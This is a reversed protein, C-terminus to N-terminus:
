WKWILDAGVKRNNMSQLSYNKITRYHLPFNSWKRGRKEGGMKIVWGHQNKIEPHLNLFAWDSLFLPHVPPFRQVVNLPREGRGHGDLWVVLCHLSVKGILRQTFNLFLSHPKPSCCNISGEEAGPSATKPSPSATSRPQEQGVNWLTGLLPSGLATQGRQAAAKAGGTDPEDGGHPRHNVTIRILM